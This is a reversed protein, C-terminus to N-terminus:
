SACFTEIQVAIGAKLVKDGVSPVCGRLGPDCRWTLNGDTRACDLDQQCPELYLGNNAVAPTLSYLLCSM